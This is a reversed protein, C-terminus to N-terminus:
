VMHALKLEHSIGDSFYWATLGLTLITYVYERCSSDCCSMM